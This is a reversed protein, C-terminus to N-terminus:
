DESEMLGLDPMARKGFQHLVTLLQHVSYASATETYLNAETCLQLLEMEAKSQQNGLGYQNLDRICRNMKALKEDSLHDFAHEQMLQGAANVLLSYQKTKM